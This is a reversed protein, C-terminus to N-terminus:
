HLPWPSKSHDELHFENNSDNNRLASHKTKNKKKICPCLWPSIHCIAMLNYVLMMAQLKGVQQNQPQQLSSGQNLKLHQWITATAAHMGSPPRTPLSEIKSLSTNESRMVTLLREHKSKISNPIDQNTTNFPIYKKIYYCHLRIGMRM